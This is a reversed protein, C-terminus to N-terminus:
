VVVSRRGQGGECSIRFMRVRDRDANEMLRLIIGHRLLDCCNRGGGGEGGGGGGGAAAAAAAAGEGGECSIRFLRLRYQDANEM